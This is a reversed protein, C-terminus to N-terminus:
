AVATNRATQADKWTRAHPVIDDAGVRNLAPWNALLLDHVTPRAFVVIIPAEAFARPRNALVLLLANRYACLRRSVVVLLLDPFACRAGELAFGKHLRVRGLLVFRFNNDVRADVDRHGADTVAPEEEGLAVNLLLGAIADLVLVVLVVVAAHEASGIAGERIDIAAYFGEHVMNSERM